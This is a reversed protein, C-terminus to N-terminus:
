LSVVDTPLRPYTRDSRRIRTQIPSPDPPAPRGALRDNTKRYLPLPRNSPVNPGIINLRCIAISGARALSAKAVRDLLEALGIADLGGSGGWITEQLPSVAEVKPADLQFLEIGLAPEIVTIKLEFLKLLHDAHNSARNTGIIIQELKGDIRYCSFVASRLGKGEQKLRHCLLDLLRRLAIEIGTHTVIPELCPLREQYPEVSQVPQIAEEERGM